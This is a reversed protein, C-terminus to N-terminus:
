TTYESNIVVYQETLDCGWATAAGDGQHLHAYLRVEPPQLAASAAAEDYPLTQGAAAVQVPGIAVDVADPDLAVDARGLAAL